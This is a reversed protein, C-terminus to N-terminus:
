QDSTACGLGEKRFLVCLDNVKAQTDVPGVKLIVADGAPTDEVKSELYTIDHESTVSKFYEIAEKKNRFESIELWLGGAGGDAGAEDEDVVVYDDIKEDSPSVPIAEAIEIKAGGEEPQEEAQEEPIDEEADQAESIDEEAVDDLESVEIQSIIDEVKEKTGEEGIQEEGTEPEIATIVLTEPSGGEPLPGQAIATGEKLVPQEEEVWPMGTIEIRFEPVPPPTTQAAPINASNDDNAEPAAEKSQSAAEVMAEALRAAKEEAASVVASQEAAVEQQPEGAGNSEAEAAQMIADSLREAVEAADAEKAGRAAARSKELAAEQQELRLTAEKAKEAAEKERRIAERGALIERAYDIKRFAEAEEALRSIVRKESERGAIKERVEALRADEAEQETKIREAEIKAMKAAEAEAKMVGALVEAVKDEAQRIRNASELAEKEKDAESKAAEAEAKAIEAKAMSDAIKAKAEEKKLRAAEMRAEEAEREARKKEDMENAAIRRTSEVENVAERAEEAAKAAAERAKETRRKAAELRAAAKEEPSTALGVQRGTAEGVRKKWWDVPPKNSKKASFQGVPAAKRIVNEVPRRRGKRPPPMTVVEGPYASSFSGGRARVSELHERARREAEEAKIKRRELNEAKEVARIMATEIKASELAKLAGEQASVARAQADAARKAAAEARRRTEEARASADKAKGELEQAKKEIEEPTEKDIDVIKFEEEPPIEEPQEQASTVEGRENVRGQMDIAFKHRAMESKNLDRTNEKDEFAAKRTEKEERAVETKPEPVRKALLNEIKKNNKKRAIDFSSEGKNNKKRADGGNKLLVAIVEENRKRVAQTLATEGIFNAANVDAGSKVLLDVIEAQNKAAARILPTFGEGDRANINAGSKILLQVFESNGERSAIHLATAGGIDPADIQAGAAILAKGVDMYGRYAARILATSEFKGRKNVDMGNSILGKVILIQGRDAADVIPSDFSMQQSTADSQVSFSQASLEAPALVSLAIIASITTKIRYEM